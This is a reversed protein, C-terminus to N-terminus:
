TRRRLIHAYINLAEGMILPLWALVFMAVGFIMLTSVQVEFISLLSLIIIASFSVQVGKNVSKSREYQIEDWKMLFTNSFNEPQNNNM